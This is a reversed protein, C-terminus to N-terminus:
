EENKKSESIVCEAANRIEELGKLDKAGFTGLNVSSDIEKGSGLILINNIIPDSENNAPTMLSKLTTITDTQSESIVKIANLLTQFPVKGPSEALRHKLEDNISQIIGESDILRTVQDNLAVGLNNIVDEKSFAKLARKETSTRRVPEVPFNEDDSDITEDEFFSKLEEPKSFDLLDAM